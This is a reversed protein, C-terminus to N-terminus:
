VSGPLIVLGRLLADVVEVEIVTVHDVDDDVPPDDM